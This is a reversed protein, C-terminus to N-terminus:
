PLTALLWDDLQAMVANTRATMSAEGNPHTWAHDMGEAEFVSMNPMASYAPARVEDITPDRTGIITVGPGVTAAICGFLGTGILSPTLWISRSGLPQGSMGGMCITGLSKGAIIIPADGYMALCQDLYAQGDCALWDLRARDEAAMFATNARYDYDLVLIHQVHNHLQQRLALLLPFDGTYGLGPLIIASGVGTGSFQRAPVDGGHADKITLEQAHSM